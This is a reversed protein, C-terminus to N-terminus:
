PTAPAPRRNSNTVLLVGGVMLGVGVAALGMFKGTDYSSAEFSM